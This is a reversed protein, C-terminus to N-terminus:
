GGFSATVHFNYNIGVGGDVVAIQDITLPEQLQDGDTGTSVNNVTGPSNLEDVLSIYQGTGNPDLIQDGGSLQVMYTGAALGTFSYNGYQDTTTTTVVGTDLNMLYVNAGAVVTQIAVGGPGTADLTVNGSLSATGTTPTSPLRLSWSEPRSNAFTGAAADFKSYLYVFSNPNSGFASDPILVSVDPSGSKNLNAHIRVTNDNRADMDYVANLGGLQHTGSNYNTLNGTNGVYLRLESLDIIPSGSPQRVTLLFERYTNGNLSVQPISSLQISHNGLVGGVSDLQLPRADTNFGEEVDNATAARRGDQLRVFTQSELTPDNSLQQFWATKGQGALKDSDVHDIVGAKLNLLAPVERADLAELNLQTRKM